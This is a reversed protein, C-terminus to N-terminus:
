RRKATPCRLCGCRGCREPSRERLPRDIKLPAVTVSAGCAVVLGRRSTSKLSQRIAIPAESGAGPRTTDPM